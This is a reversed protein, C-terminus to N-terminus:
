ARLREIERDVHWALDAMPLAGSGLITDHFDKLDEVFRREHM